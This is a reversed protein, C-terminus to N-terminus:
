GINLTFIFSTSTLLDPLMGIIKISFTGPPKAMAVTMTGSLSDVSVLDHVPDLPLGDSM